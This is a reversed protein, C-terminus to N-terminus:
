QQRRPRGGRRGNKRAAAVKRETRASGGAHGMERAAQRRRLWARSAEDPDRYSVSRMTGGSGDDAWTDIVRYAGCHRCVETMIVGGGHGRVGPNLPDGGVVSHPSVWKHDHGEACRPPLPDVERSEAQIEDWYIDIVDGDRFIAVRGAYCHVIYTSEEPDYTAIFDDLAERVSKDPYYWAAGDPGRVEVGPLWVVTMRSSEPHPGCELNFRAAVTQASEGSALATAVRKALDGRLSISM